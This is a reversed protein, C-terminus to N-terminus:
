KVLESAKLHNWQTEQGVKPRESALGVLANCPYTSEGRGHRDTYTM